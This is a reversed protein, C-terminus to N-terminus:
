QAYKAFISQLESDNFWAKIMDDEKLTDADIGEAGIKLAEEVHKLLMMRDDKEAGIRALRIHGNAQIYKLDSPSISEVGSSKGGAIRQLLDNQIALRPESSIPFRSLMEMTTDQFLISPGDTRQCWEDFGSAYRAPTLPRMIRKADSLDEKAETWNGMGAHCVARVLYLGFYRPFKDAVPDTRKVLDSILRPTWQDQPPSQLSLWVWYSLVPVPIDNRGIFESLQDIAQSTRGFNDLLIARGMATEYTLRPAATRYRLYASEFTPAYRKSADQWNEEDMGEWELRQRLRDTRLFLLGLHHPNRELGERISQMARGDWDDRKLQNQNVTEPLSNDISFHISQAMKMRMWALWFCLESDLHLDGTWQPIESDDFAIGEDSQIARALIPFYPPREFEDERTELDAVDALLSESLTPRMAPEEISNLYVLEWTAENLVREWKLEADEQESHIAVQRLDNIAALHQGTMRLLKARSSRLSPEDPNKRIATSLDDLTDSLLTRYQGDDKLEPLQHYVSEAHEILNMWDNSHGSESWDDEGYFRSHIQWAILSLLLLGVFLTGAVVAKSNYISFKPANLTNTELGINKMLPQSSQINPIISALGDVEPSELTRELYFRKIDAAVQDATAYRQSRDNKMMKEIISIIQFPIDPNTTSISKPVGDTLQRLAALPTPADIAPTGTILEYFIAGLSYIDTRQDVEESSLLAQEPSMYRPTGLLDGTTSMWRADDALRALGFDALKPRGSKDIMVNAPKIDRHVIGQQHSHAVAGALHYILQLAADIGWPGKELVQELTPGEVFEMVLYPIGVFHSGSHSQQQPDISPQSTGSIRGSSGVSLSSSFNDEDCESKKFATDFAPVSAPVSTPALSPSNAWGNQDIGADYVQVIHPHSLKAAAKAERQFREVLDSRVYAASILVKVAVYRELQLDLCQFVVGFAGSGLKKIVQYKGIYSPTAPEAM